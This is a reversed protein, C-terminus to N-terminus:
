LAPVVDRLHCIFPDAETGKVAALLRADATVMRGGIERACALYLCESVPHQLALALQTAPVIYPASALIVPIGATVAEVINRAHDVSIDGRQVLRWAVSATEALFLDPAYLPPGLEPLKMAEASLPEEVFWKLAVSTDVILAATM